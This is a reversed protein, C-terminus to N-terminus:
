AASSVWGKNIRESTLCLEESSSALKLQSLPLPQAVFWVKFIQSWRNAPVKQLVEAM